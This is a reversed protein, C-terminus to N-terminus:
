YYMKCRPLKVELLKMKHLFDNAPKLANLLHTNTGNFLMNLTDLGVQLEGPIPSIIQIPLRMHTALKIYDQSELHEQLEQLGLDKIRETYRRRVLELRYIEKERLSHDPLNKQKETELHLLYILEDTSILELKIREKYGLPTIKTLKKQLLAYKSPMVGTQMRDISDRLSWIIQYLFYLNQYKKMDFVVLESLSTLPSLQLPNIGGLETVKLQKIDRLENITLVSLPLAYDYEGELLCLEEFLMEYYFNQAVSMGDFDFNFCFSADKCMKKALFYELISKHSFKFQGQANRNLLSKGKLERESDSYKEVENLQLVGSFRDDKNVYYGGREKRREYLNVSLSQSFDYLLKKYNEGNGYKERIGHKKAERDIWKEILAEYIKFSYKFTKDIDVLDNIYSLLMPRMVLNPSKEVIEKAKSRKGFLFFPYHFSFFPFRMKLYQKIDKNNFISLYLKQFKYEIQSDGYAKIYGAEKPVEEESPFFQTRCTIVIERFEKSKNLIETMRAKHDEVAKVDEDFADLLLITNRKDEVKEIADLADPSGLPFLVINHNRGIGLLERWQNKYSLYLNIMFTTKGMGSDALILYYKNDNGRNKFVDKLFLPIIKNKASAIYDRGPEEDESPSINQYKTPIYYRTAKVIDSSSFYPELNQNALRKNRQLVIFKFFTWLVKIITIALASVAITVTIIWKIDVGAENLHKALESM